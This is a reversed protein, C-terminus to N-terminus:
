TKRTRSCGLKMSGRAGANATPSPRFASTSRGCCIWILRPGSALAIEEHKEAIADVGTFMRNDLNFFVKVGLDFTTRTFKQIAKEWLLLNVDFLMNDAEVRDFFQRCSVFASAEFNRLLAEFGFCVGTHVNVIPQFAYDMPAVRRRWADLKPHQAVPPRPVPVMLKDINHWTVSPRDDKAPKRDPLVSTM